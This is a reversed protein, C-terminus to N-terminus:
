PLPLRLQHRPPGTPRKRFVEEMGLAPSLILITEKPTPALNCQDVLLMLQAVRLAPIRM